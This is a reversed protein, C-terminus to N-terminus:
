EMVNENMHVHFMFYIAGYHKHNNTDNTKKLVYIYIHFLTVTIQNISCLAADSSEGPVYSLKM